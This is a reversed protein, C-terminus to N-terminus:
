GIQVTPFGVTISSGNSATDGARLAPKNGIFVTFSGIIFPMPVNGSVPTSIDGAVAAPLGGIIVTPVGPGTVAGDSTLDTIRAAAGM